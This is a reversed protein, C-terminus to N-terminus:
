TENGGKKQLSRMSVKINRHLVTKGKLLLKSSRKQYSKTPGSPRGGEEWIEKSPYTDDGITNNETDYTLDSISTPLSTGNKTVNEEIWIM